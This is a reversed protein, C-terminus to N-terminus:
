INKIEFFLFDLSIYFLRVLNQVEKLLHQIKANKEEAQVTLSENISKLSEIQIKLDNSEQQKQWKNKEQFIDFLYQLM